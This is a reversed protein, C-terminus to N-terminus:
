PVATVLRAVKATTPNEVEYQRFLLMVSCPHKLLCGVRIVTHRADVAKGAHAQQQAKANRVNGSALYIIFLAAFEYTRYAM